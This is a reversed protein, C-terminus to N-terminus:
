KADKIGMKTRYRRLAEAPKINEAWTESDTFVVFADLKKEQELAWTIPAAVDTSGM